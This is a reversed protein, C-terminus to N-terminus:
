NLLENVFVHLINKIAEDLILALKVVYFKEDSYAPNAGLTVTFYSFKVSFKQLLYALDM